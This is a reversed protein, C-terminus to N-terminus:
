KTRTRRAAYAVLFTIFFVAFVGLAGSIFRRVTVRPWYPSAHKNVVSHVTIGYERMRDEAVDRHKLYPESVGADRLGNLRRGDFLVDLLSEIFREDVSETAMLIADAAVTEFKFSTDDSSDSSMYGSAALGYPNAVYAAKLDEKYSFASYRFLRSGASQNTQM